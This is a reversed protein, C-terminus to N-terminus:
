RDQEMGTEVAMVLRPCGETDEQWESSLNSKLILKRALIGPSSPRTIQIAEQSHEQEAVMGKNSSSFLARILCGMPWGVETPRRIMVKICGLVLV